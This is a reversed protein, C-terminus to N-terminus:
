ESDAEETAQTKPAIIQQGKYFGDKTVHHRHHLEGTTKDISLTATGLADHGRRHGRRSPTKKSKQVAMSISWFNKTLKVFRGHKAIMPLALILEQELLPALLLNEEVVIADDAENIAELQDEYKVLVLAFTAVVSQMLPQLCRQCSFVLDISVKGVLAYQGDDRRVVSLQAQAMGQDGIQSDRLNPMSDLPLSGSITENHRYMLWPDIYRPLLDSM